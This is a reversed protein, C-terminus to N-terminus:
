LLSFSSSSSTENNSTWIKTKVFSFLTQRHPLHFLFTIMRKGVPRLHLHPQLAPAWSLLDMRCPSGASLPLPQGWPPPASTASLTLAAPLQLHMKICLLLKSLICNTLHPHSTAWHPSREGSCDQQVPILCGLDGDSVTVKTYIEYKPLFLATMDEETPEFCHM